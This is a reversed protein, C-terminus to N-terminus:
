DERRQDLYLNAHINVPNVEQLTMSKSGILLIEVHSAPSIIQTKM